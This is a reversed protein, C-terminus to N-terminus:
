PALTPQADYWERAKIMHFDRQGNNLAVACSLVGWKAYLSGSRQKDHLRLRAKVDYRQNSADVNDLLLTKGALRVNGSAQAQGSDVLKFVWKPYDKQRSFMALLFGVDKMAIQARGDISVPRDWDMRARQLDIRTWWGSRSEGGPETFSVNNLAMRTGDINFTHRKLDARHLKTDIDVDTRLAIGALHMGAGRADIGLTGQGIAGAGDLTVDGSLTGSGGDFRMHENPLYRNYARLDPVQANAFTLRARMAQGVERMAGPQRLAQREVGSVSDLVVRLDQGQVFPTAPTDDAAIDFHEMTLDLHPMLEDNPGADLRGDARARGRIRNGMVHAVAEVDPVSVRSGAAIRGDAVRVDADVAGAGDLSLWPANFFHGLWRLSRFQWRGVVHGSSRPLLDAVIQRPPSLPVQTGRVRVDADLTIRGDNATPTKAVLHVDRDVDLSIDLSNRHERGTPDRGAVPVNWRVISGSALAGRAFGLKVQAQGGGPVTTMIMRGQSDVDARLSSAKGDLTLEADTLKLKAIGRAQERTHRAIAFRADLRADRLLEQGGMTLRANEFHATSPMLELAGGRLQKYFGVEARGTGELVLDNFHGSRISDTRIRDFQLVWGGPRTPKPPVREGKMDAGGSVNTAFVDIVRVTKGFLPAIAVRGSAKDAQVSWFTRAVHGKMRVDSVTVRGPWLTYGHGWEIQFKEPKRNATWEGLPTNIFANGAILYFAYVGILAFGVRRIWARVPAPVRQWSRSAFNLEM